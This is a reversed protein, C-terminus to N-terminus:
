SAARLENELASAKFVISAYTQESLEIETPTTQESSGYWVIM